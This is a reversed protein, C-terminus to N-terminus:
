GVDIIACSMMAKACLRGAADTLTASAAGARAAVHDARGEAVLVGGGPRVGRITNVTLQLTTCAKGRELTTLVAGAMASDLLTAIVGGHLVGGSHFLHEAPELALRVMGEEVQEVTWGITATIPQAPEAGDRLGRFYDLGSIRAFVSRSLDPAIWEYTRRRSEGSM